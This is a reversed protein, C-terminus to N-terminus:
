RTRKFELCYKATVSWTQLSGANAGQGMTVLVGYHQINSSACDMWQKEKGEAYGTFAGNYMAFAAKPILKITFPKYANHVVCNDYQNIDAVTSVGSVSDFDIASYIIPPNCNYATTIGINVPTFTIQVGTFRYADFLSTFESANPVDSLQFSYGKTTDGAASSQWSTLTVTRSIRTTQSGGSRAVKPIRFQSAVSRIKKKYIKRGMYKKYQKSFM